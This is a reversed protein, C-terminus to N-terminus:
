YLWPQPESGQAPWEDLLQVWHDKGIWFLRQNWTNVLIIGKNGVLCRGVATTRLVLNTRYMEHGELTLWWKQVQRPTMLVHWPLTHTVPTLFCIESYRLQWPPTKKSPLWAPLQYLFKYLTQGDLHFAAYKRCFSILCRFTKLIPNLLWTCPFGLFDMIRQM